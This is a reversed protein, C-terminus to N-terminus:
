TILSSRPLRDGLYGAFPSVLGYSWLFFTGVAALAVESMGLDKRLLPFLATIATRDGYNLAAECFLVLVLLWKYRPSPLLKAKLKKEHLHIEELYTM